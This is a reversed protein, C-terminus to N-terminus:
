EAESNTSEENSAEREAVEREAAVRRAEQILQLQRARDVDFDVEAAGLLANKINDRTAGIVSLEEDKIAGTSSMRGILQLLVIADTCTLGEIPLTQQEPTLM